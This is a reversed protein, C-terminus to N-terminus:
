QALVKTKGKGQTMKTYLEFLKELRETDNRFRRGIYIRELLEDNADHARRLNEPMRSEGFKVEYLEAITLPYNAERAILINEACRSLDSKNQNTLNPLPFTNWCLNSSYSLGNGLRGSLTKAWIFHLRSNFISFDILDADFVAHAKHTVILQRDFIGSPIYDRSEASVQPVIMGVASTINRYRFQHPKDALTQAVEGAEERFKRVLEIRERILEVSNALNLDQSDIWLCWRVSGDFFESTGSVRRILRLAEPNTNEIESKEESSIFLNGGDAAQNGTNIKSLNAIKM